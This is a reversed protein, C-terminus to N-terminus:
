ALTLQFKAFRDTNAGHDQIQQNQKEWITPAWLEAYDGQGVLCLQDQLGAYTRLEAPILLGGNRDLEIEAATGLFMRALLRGLPDTLSAAKICACIREFAAESLLLLNQDFGQALFVHAGLTKQYVGPLASQGQQDITLTQQGILM